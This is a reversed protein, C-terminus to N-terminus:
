QGRQGVEERAEQCIACPTCCWWAFLDFCLTKGTGSEIDFKTRLKQRYIVGVLIIALFSLGATYPNLLMLIFMLAFAKTYSLIKQRDLTDAWRLCPCCCGLVCINGDEFCSFLGFTFSSRNLLSSAPVAKPTPSFVKPYNNSAKKYLYAFLLGFLLYTCSYEIVRQQQKSNMTWFNYENNAKWAAAASNPLKPETLEAGPEAAKPKNDEEAEPAPTEAKAAAPEEKVAAKEKPAAKEKAAKKAKAEAAWKKRAKSLAAQDATLKKRWLRRRM